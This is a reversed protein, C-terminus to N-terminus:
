KYPMVSPHFNNREMGNYEHQLCYGLFWTLWNGGSIAIEEKKNLDRIIPEKMIISNLKTIKM